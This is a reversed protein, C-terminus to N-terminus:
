QTHIKLQCLVWILLSYLTVSLVLLSLLHIDWVYYLLIALLVFLSWFSGHVIGVVTRNVHGPTLISEIIDNLARHFAGQGAM